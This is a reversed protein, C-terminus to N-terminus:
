ATIYNDTVSKNAHIAFALLALNILVGLLWHISFGTALLGALFEVVIVPAGTVIALSVLADYSLKVQMFTAMLMGLLGYILALVLRFVYVGIFIFPALIWGLWDAMFDMVQQAMAQTIVMDELQDLEYIRIENSNKRYAIQTQSIFIVAPGSELTAKDRTTDIIAVPRGSAPETILYPIDEPTSAKGNTVTITPMQRIYGPAYHKNFESFGHNIYLALRLAILLALLLLLVFAAGRWNAAVDRYFSRSGFSMYLGQLLGYQRM